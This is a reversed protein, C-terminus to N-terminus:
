TLSTLSASSIRPSHGTSRGVQVVRRSSRPDRRNCPGTRTGCMADGAESLVHAQPAINTGVMFGLMVIATCLRLVPPVDQGHVTRLRPLDLEAAKALADKLKLPAFADYLLEDVELVFELAVCNLILDGLAITHAIFYSGGYCLAAAIALRFLQVLIFSLLRVTSVSRLKGDVDVDTAHGHLRAVARITSLCSSIEVLVQVFLTVVRRRWGESM